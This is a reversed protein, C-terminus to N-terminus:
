TADPIATLEIFISNERGSGDICGLATQGPRGLGLCFCSQLLFFLKCLLSCLAPQKEATEVAGEGDEEFALSLLGPHSSHTQYRLWKLGMMLKRDLSILPGAKGDRDREEPASTFIGGNKESGKGAKDQCTGHTETRNM